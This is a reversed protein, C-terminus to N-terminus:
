VEVGHIDRAREASLIGDKVDRKVAEPDRAKPDGYGAGCSTVVRIVDDTTLGLGSVFSYRETEGNKIVEVYNGSGEEAGELGWPKIRSRTYGATLFGNQTRIRYELVLGRGGSFQGEGGPETNLAMRDVFLGNRAESIEAPTNYTEGHFGSFICPNGDRGEWAGWGGIQPEIITYQRGTDPHIGGIFTGCISSFHGAPLREPIHPALCRWILDYVRVETEFYFGIAAPEQAHFISGERTLVKLPRFSGDNAPSDPDTLAKFVMQACVMTGDRSTNTPGVDQDPNDRLDVLFETDTITIKVNFIRGDDQEEDLEFTGKPLNALEALATKEGFEMFSQMARIFTDAGYKTALGELRRAGVRVSAIAAWVDGLLFDPMRSNCTIIDMVAQDTEGERILKVAPLRLGEQFIETAEGSLSGPAMGGVDSNHAINATWAILRGDVFVPMALVLDNLHTVGGYWPDNTIFVDGPRIDEHKSLIFQVSKDLVGIFAPIGAGSSAIRGEADTIGTGMDLVEYIISSMATKRMAAFMEDAAAQLSNQIIELTIPDNQSM